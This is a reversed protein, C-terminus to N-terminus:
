AIKKKEIWRFAGWIPKDAKPNHNRFHPYMFEKFPDGKEQDWIEKCSLCIVLNPNTKIELVKLAPM